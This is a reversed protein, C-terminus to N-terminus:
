QHAGLKNKGTQSLTKEESYQRCVPVVVKGENRTNRQDKGGEEWNRGTM